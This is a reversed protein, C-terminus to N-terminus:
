ADARQEEVLEVLRFGIGAWREARDWDGDSVSEAFAPLTVALARRLDAVLAREEPTLNMTRGARVRGGCFSVTKPWLRQDVNLDGVKGSAGKAAAKSGGNGGDMRVSGVL